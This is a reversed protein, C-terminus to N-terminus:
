QVATAQMPVLPYGLGGEGDQGDYLGGRYLESAEVSTGYGFPGGVAYRVMLQGAALTTWDGSTKTLIVRNRTAPTTDISAGFGSRSWNVGYDVSIEFGQVNGTFTAEDDIRLKGGSPLIATVYFSTKAGSTFTPSSLTADVLDSLGLSRAAAEAMRIAMRINGRVNTGDQHPGGGTGIHMDTIEPGVSFGHLEAWDREAKRCRGINAQNSDSTDTDFPGVGTPTARTAPSMALAFGSRFLTGDFLWHVNSNPGNGLIVPDLVNVDFNDGEGSRSTYWQWLICSIDTGTYALLANWDINAGSTPRNVFDIITNLMDAGVASGNIIEVPCGAKAAIHLGFNIIAENATIGGTYVMTQYDSAVVNTFPYYNSMSLRVGKPLTNFVTGEGFMINTQSQNPCFIKYGVAMRRRERFYVGDSVTVGSLYALKTWPVFPTGDELVIRGWVWSNLWRVERFGFDPMKPGYIYGTYPTAGVMGSFYIQSGGARPRMGYNKGDYIKDLTIYNTTGQRGPTSGPHIQGLVTAIATTDSTGIVASLSTTDTGRLKRYYIYNSAGLQARADAGLAIAQWDVDAGAVTLFGIEAIEGDWGLTTNTNIGRATDSTPESAPLEIGGIYFHSNTLTNVGGLTQTLASSAGSLITGDAMNIVDLVFTGAAPTSTRRIVVLVWDWTTPVVDSNFSYATGSSRRMSFVFRNRTASANYAGTRFGLSFYGTGGSSNGFVGFTNNLGGRERSLRVKVFIATGDTTLLNALSGKAQKILGFQGAYALNRTPMRISESVLDQSAAVAIDRAAEAALAAATAASVFGAAVESDIAGVRGWGAPSDDYVYLGSNPVTGGFVPDTHTGTDTASVLAKDGNVMSTAAALDAYLQFEVANQARHMYGLAADRIPGLVDSGPGTIGSRIIQVTDAM